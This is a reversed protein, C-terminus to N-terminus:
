GKHYDVRQICCWKSLPTKQGPVFAEGTREKHAKLEEFKENWRDKPVHSSLSALTINKSQLIRHVTSQRMDLEDAVHRLSKAAPMAKIGQIVQDYDVKPKRGSGSKRSLDIPNGRIIAEKHNKWLRRIQTSSYGFTQKAEQVAHKTLKGNPPVSRALMRLIGLQKEERSMTPHVKSAASGSM